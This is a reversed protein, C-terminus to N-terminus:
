FKTFHFVLRVLGGCKAKEGILAYGHKRQASDWTFTSEDIDVLLNHDLGCVGNQHVGLVWWSIRQAEDRLNSFRQIKKRSFGCRQLERCLTSQSVDVEFGLLLYSQLEPLSVMPCLSVFQLMNMVDDASLVCKEAHAGGGKLPKGDLIRRRWRSVSAQSCHFTSSIEDITGSASVVNARFWEPFPVGSPRNM